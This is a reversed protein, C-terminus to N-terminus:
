GDERFIWAGYGVVQGRPGATDGSNRLDVTSVSMQRRRAEFLLGKMPIRGCAQADGIADGDLAEVAKCTRADLERAEDYSLYHSLDSSVVILTEGGGWLKELVEAVDVASARGVALPVLSFDALVVQLFPLHVELSHEDMHAAELIRVQPMDLILDVAQRDIPVDGLPTAFAEAASLALADIAVRHCPGLLVVRKITDKAPALTAYAAAAVPGSYIYGAHPAIIAKPAPLNTARVGALYGKVAAELEGAPGPYFAGAVAPRRIYAM